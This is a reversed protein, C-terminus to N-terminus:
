MMLMVIYGSTGSAASSPMPVTLRAKTVSESAPTSAVSGATPRSGDGVGVRHRVPEHEVPEGGGLRADDGRELRDDAGDGLSIGASWRIGAVATASTRARRTTANSGAHGGQEHGAAGPEDAARDDGLRELAAPLHAHEVRQAGIHVRAAGLARRLQVRPDFEHDAVDSVGRGHIGREVADVHDAM